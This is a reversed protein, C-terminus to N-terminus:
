PQHVTIALPSARVVVLGAPPQFREVELVLRKARAHSAKENGTKAPGRPDSPRASKTRHTVLAMAKGPVTFM